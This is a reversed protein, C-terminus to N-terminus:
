YPMFHFHNVQSLKEHFAGKVLCKHCMYFKGDLIENRTWEGDVLEVIVIASLVSLTASLVSLSFNVLFDPRSLPSPALTIM